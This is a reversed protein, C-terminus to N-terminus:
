INRKYVVSGTGNESGSSVPGCGITGDLGIIDNDNWRIEYRGLTKKRVTKSGSCMLFEKQRGYRVLLM